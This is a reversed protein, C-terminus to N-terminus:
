KRLLDSGQYMLMTEIDDYHESRSKYGTTENREELLDLYKNYERQNKFITRKKKCPFDDPSKPKNCKPIGRIPTNQKWEKESSGLSFEYIENEPTNIKVRKRTSTASQGLPRLRPKGRVSVSSKTKSKTQRLPALRLSGFGRAVNKRTRGKSKRNYNNKYSKRSPM